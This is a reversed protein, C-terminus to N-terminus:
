KKSLNESKKIKKIKSHESPTLLKLNTILNNLKNGDKHHIHYGKPVARGNFYEWMYHHYKRWGKKFKYDALKPIHILLYGRKGLKMTPNGYLFKQLSLNLIAKTGAKQMKMVQKRKEPSKMTESIKERVDERKSPNLDGKKSCSACRKSTSSIKKGCECVNTLWSKKHKNKKRWEIMYLRHKEKDKM